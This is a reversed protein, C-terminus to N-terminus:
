AFIRKLLCRGNSILHLKTEVETDSNVCQWKVIKEINVNKRSDCTGSCVKLNVHRKTTIIIVPGWTKQDHMNKHKVLRWKVLFTANCQDCQIKIKKKHVVKLHQELSFNSAFNEGCKYCNLSVKQTHYKYPEEFPLMYSIKALVNFM